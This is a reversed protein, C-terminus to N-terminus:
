GAKRGGGFGGGFNGGSGLLTVNSTMEVTQVTEGITVTYTEGVKLKDSSFVVSNGTKQTTYSYIEEGSANKIVIKSGSAINTSTVIRFSAQASDNDPVEAMGSAGLAIITGGNVKIVGGSDLSGNGNNTPGEVVVDGGTIIMKGNADLGDGQANVFITGGNITLDHGTDANKDNRSVVDRGGTGGANIGDDSATINIVGGNITFNAKSELGESSKLVNIIGDDIVVDGHASIGKGKESTLNMEGGKITITAASHIAHDASNVTIKGGEITIDTGAKIGKTATEEDEATVETMQNQTEKGFGGPPTMGEMGEPPTMGEMGEPPTMGEMGEPPTMGQTGEPRMMSTMGEPPTMDQTGEPRMMSTMGDPRTMGQTGEPPTMGEMSQASTTNSERNQRDRGGRGGNAGQTMDGGFGNMNGWGGMSNAVEGTTTINIEGDEIIINEEAQIGDGYATVTISGGKIKIENNAHIGDKKDSTLILTGEEIKIDDDSAIAHHAKSTVYLTGAGKIEIDDNSFIAAKADQTYEEGDTVFNETGKSVTILAEGVNEFFIAPGTPNTLKIGSLRLKVKERTNVYIMANENEGTVTFDGGDTIEVVNNTVSAGMGTVSLETLDITGLNEKWEDKSAEYEATTIEVRRKENNWVVEADLSESIARVPVLTTDSAIYPAVDLEVAEGNIYLVKEGVTLKIVDDDKTATVSKEENNWEVEMGFAEFIARMPVMTRGNEIRAPVPCEVKQDDLRVTIEEAFSVTALCATLMSALVITCIIKKIKM